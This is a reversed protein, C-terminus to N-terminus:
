NNNNQKGSYDKVTLSINDGMDINKLGRAEDQVRLRFLGQDLNKINNANKLYVKRKTNTKVINTATVDM